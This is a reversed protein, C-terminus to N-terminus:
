DVAADALYIGGFPHHIFQANIAGHHPKGFALLFQPQRM